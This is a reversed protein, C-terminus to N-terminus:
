KRILPLSIRGNEVMGLVLWDGMYRSHTTISNTAPDLASNPDKVWQQSGADWTYFALSSEMLRNATVEEQSYQVALSYDASPAQAPAGAQFSFYISTNGMGDPLGTLSTTLRGTHTLTAGTPFAGAPITYAINGREAAPTFSIDAAAANARPQQGAAGITLSDSRSFDWDAIYDIGGLGFSRVFGRTLNLSTSYNLPALMADTKLIREEIQRYRAIRATEDLISLAQNLSTEYAEYDWNGYLDRMNLLSALFNYGDQYDSCWGRRWVAMSKNQIKEEYENITIGQVSFQANLERNWTAALYEMGAKLNAANAHDNQYYLTIPPLGPYNGDYAASIDARAQTLNYPLHIGASAESHGSVGPAIFTWATRLGSNAIATFQERDIAEILAQRLKAPNPPQAAGLVSTNFGLYNTCQLDLSSFESSLKPSAKVAPLNAPGFTVIDLAGGLYLNWAESQSANQFIIQPISVGAQDIFAPNKRLFAKEQSYSVLTYPGSTVLKHPNLWSDPFAQVLIHPLPRAQSMALITPFFAAPQTLTFRIHTDDIVTIGVQDASAVGQSYSEAGQIILLSSMDDQEPDLRLGRLIGFRLDEATLPSGDSWKLGSRLTFTWTQSDASEWAAALNKLAQGTAPNIRTLGAFIQDYIMAQEVFPSYAPDYSGMLSMAQHVTELAADEGAEALLRIRMSGTSAGAPVAVPAASNWDSQGDYFRPQYGEAAARLIYNGAPLDAIEYYGTQDSVTSAYSRGSGDQAVAMVEAGELASGDAKEAVGILKGGQELQFNIEAPTTNVPAAIIKATEFNVAADYLEDVFYQYASDQSWSPKAYVRYYGPSVYLSYAGADDTEASFGQGTQTNEAYVPLHALPAGSGQNTVAGRLIAAPDLTFNINPTTQGALVTVPTAADYDPTNNHYRGIYYRGTCDPCAQVRYSGATLGAITYAGNAATEVTQIWEGSDWDIAAVTIGALSNAPAATDTVTGSISGDLDLLLQLNAAAAVAGPGQAQASPSHAAVAGGAVLMALLVRGGAHIFQKVASLLFGTFMM